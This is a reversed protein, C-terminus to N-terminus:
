QSAGRAREGSAAPAAAIRLEIEAIGAVGGQVLDGPNVAGVGEPTGTFILDGPALHYFRSLHSVIEPVSWILESLDSDQRVTGNVSLWIRGRQPHGTMAVPRVPALVAGNEVDKGLSWPRGKERAALQLDRRTMDLGCTYGFVLSAAEDPRVRFGHGGLAVVLEIEHQFNATGPPYPIEAGSAVVAAPSKTFYFPEERDPEFGMERAHAAYNRGVCFIRRVPFRQTSGEIAVSVPDGPPFAYSGL